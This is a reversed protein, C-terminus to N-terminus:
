QKSIVASFKGQMIADQLFFIKNFTGHLVEYEEPSPLGLVYGSVDSLGKNKPHDIGIGLRWFDYGLSVIISKLGNHGRASGGQKMGWVGVKKELADHAICINECPIRYYRAFCGVSPGSVNMYCDPLYLATQGLPHEFWAVHGFNKFPKVDLAYADILESVLQRGLNHRTSAYQAGINGLGVVMYIDQAM